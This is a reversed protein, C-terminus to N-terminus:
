RDPFVLTHGGAICHAAVVDGGRGYCREFLMAKCGGPAPCRTGQPARM